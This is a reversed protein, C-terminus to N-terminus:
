SFLYLLYSFLGQFRNKGDNEAYKYSIIIVAVWCLVCMVNLNSYEKIYM